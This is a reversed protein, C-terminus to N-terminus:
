EFGDSCSDFVVVISVVEGQLQFYVVVKCVVQLCVYLSVEEDYVLIVIGIM